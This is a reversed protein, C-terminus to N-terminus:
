ENPTLLRQCGELAQQSNGNIIANVIAKHAKLRFAKAAIIEEFYHQYIPHFLNMFSGLFPNGCSQYITYHLLQDAEIWKERNFQKAM